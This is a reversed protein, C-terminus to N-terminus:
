LCFYRNKDRPRDHGGRCGESRRSLCRRLMLMLLPAQISGCFSNSVHDFEITLYSFHFFFLFLGGGLSTKNTHHCTLISFDPTPMSLEVVTATPAPTRPNTISADMEFKPAMIEKPALGEIESGM